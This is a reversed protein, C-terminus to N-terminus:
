FDMFVIILIPYRYRKLLAGLFDFVRKMEKLIELNLAINQLTDKQEPSIQPEYPFNKQGIRIKGGNAVRVLFDIDKIRVDLTGTASFKAQGDRFFSWSQGFQFYFGNKNMPLSFYQSGYSQEDVFVEEQSHFMLRMDDDAINAIPFLTDNQDRAYVYLPNGARIYGDLASDGEGFIGTIASINIGDLGKIKGLTKINGHKQKKRNKIFNQCILTLNNGEINHLEITISKRKKFKKLLLDIDYPLMQKWFIKKEHSGNLVQVVFFLIGSENKYAELEARKVKPHKCTIRSFQKVEHGKIQVPIRDVYNDNTQQPSKYVWIYGDFFPRTGGKDFDPHLTPQEDTVRSIEGVAISDIKNRDRGM